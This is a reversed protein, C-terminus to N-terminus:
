SEEWKGVTRLFAEARQAATAHWYHSPFGSPAACVTLNEKYHGWQNIELVKEAEHMANLDNLYDPLVDRACATEWSRCEHAGDDWHKFLFVEGDPNILRYRLIESQWILPKLSWGCAEAIALRQQEHKM